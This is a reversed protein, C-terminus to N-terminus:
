GRRGQNALTAVVQRITLYLKVSGLAQSINWAQRQVFGLEGALAAEIDFHQLAPPPWPCGPVLLGAVHATIEDVTSFGKARADEVAPVFFDSHHSLLATRSPEGLKWSINCGEVVLTEVRLKAALEGLSKPAAEASGKTGGEDKSRSSAWSVLGALAGLAGVGLLIKLGAGDSPDAETDDKAKTKTKTAM